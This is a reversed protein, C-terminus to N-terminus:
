DLLSSISIKKKKFTKYVFFTLLKSVYHDLIKKKLIKKIHIM